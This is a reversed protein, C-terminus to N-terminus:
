ELIKDNEHGRLAESLTLVKDNDHAGALGATLRSALEGGFASAVGALFRSDAGLGGVIENLEQDNLEQLEADLQQVKEKLEELNKAM